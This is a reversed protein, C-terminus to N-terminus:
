TTQEGPSKQQCFKVALPALHRGSRHPCFICLLFFSLRKKQGIKCQRDEKSKHIKQGCRDPLCLYLHVMVFKTFLRLYCQLRSMM